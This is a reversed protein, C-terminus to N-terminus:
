CYVIDDAYFIAGFFKGGISCGLNANRLMCMLDDVYINYFLPSLIGGQKVGSNIVIYDTLYGNLRVCAKSNTYCSLLVRVVEFPVNKDILIDFSKFDNDIDYSM